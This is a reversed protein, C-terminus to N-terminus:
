CSFDKLIPNEVSEKVNLKLMNTKVPSIKQICRHGIATGSAISIWKDDVFAELEFKRVREGFRIDEMLIIHNISTENELTLLM